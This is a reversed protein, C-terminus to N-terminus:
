NIKTENIKEIVKRFKEDSRLYNPHYTWIVPIGINIDNTIDVVFNDNSLKNPLKGEELGFSKEISSIYDKGAVLLIIDPQSIEIEKLLISKDDRGFPENISVAESPYLSEIKNINNWCLGYGKETIQSFLSWFPSSNEKEKGNIKITPYITYGETWKQNEEPTIFDFECDTYGRTEKGIYMIKKASNLYKETIAFSFPLCVKSNPNEKKFKNVVEDIWQKQVKLLENNVEKVNKAQM